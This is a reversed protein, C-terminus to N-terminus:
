YRKWYGDEQYLGNEQACYQTADETSMSVGGLGAAAAMTTEQKVCKDLLKANQQWQEELPTGQGPLYVSQYYWYAAMAVVGLIILNKM